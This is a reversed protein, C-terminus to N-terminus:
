THINRVLFRFVFVVLSFVVFILLTTWWDEFGYFTLVATLYFAGVVVRARRSVPRRGPTGNWRWGGAYYFVLLAPVVAGAWWGIAGGFILAAVAGVLVVFPAWLVVSLPMPGSRWRPNSSSLGTAM